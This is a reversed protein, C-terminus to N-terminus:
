HKSFVKRPLSLKIRGEAGVTLVVEQNRALAQENLEIREREM